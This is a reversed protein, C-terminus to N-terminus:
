PDGAQQRITIPARDARTVRHHREVWLPENSRSVPVNSRSFLNAVATAAMAGTAYIAQDTRDGATGVVVALVGGPRRLADAVELLSALSAENHALDLVVATGDVVYVNLRGSHHQAGAAFSALRARVADM